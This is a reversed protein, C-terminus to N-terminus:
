EEIPMLERNRGIRIKHQFHKLAAVPDIGDMTLPALTPYDFRVELFTSRVVHGVSPDVFTRFIRLSICNCTPLVLMAESAYRIALAAVLKIYQERIAKDTKEKYSVKGSAL